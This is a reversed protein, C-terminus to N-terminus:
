FSPELFTYLLKEVTIGKAAAMCKAALVSVCSVEINLWVTCGYPLGGFLEITTEEDLSLYAWTRAEAITLPVIM